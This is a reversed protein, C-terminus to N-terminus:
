STRQPESPVDIIPPRVNAVAQVIAITSAMALQSPLSLEDPELAAEDTDGV